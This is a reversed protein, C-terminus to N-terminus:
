DDHFWTIGRPVPECGSLLSCQLCRDGFFPRDIGYTTSVYLMAYLINLYNFNHM